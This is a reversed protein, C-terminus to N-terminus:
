EKWGRELATQGLLHVHLKQYQPGKVGEAKTEATAARILVHARMLVDM